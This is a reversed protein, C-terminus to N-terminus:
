VPTTTELLRKLWEIKKSMNGILKIYKRNEDRPVSENRKYVIFCDNLFCNEQFLVQSKDAPTKPINSANKNQALNAWSTMKKPLVTDDNDKIKSKKLSMSSESFDKESFDTDDPDKKTSDPVKKSSLISSLSSLRNSKSIEKSNSIFYNLIDNEIELDKRKRLRAERRSLTKDDDVFSNTVDTDDNKASKETTLLSSITSRTSEKLVSVLTFLASKVSTPTNERRSTLHNNPNTYVYNYMDDESPSSDVFAGFQSIHHKHFHKNYEEDALREEDIFEEEQLIHHNEWEDNEDITYTRINQNDAFKKNYM